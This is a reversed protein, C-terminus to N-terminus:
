NTTIKIAIPLVYDDSLGEMTFTQTAFATGTGPTAVATASTDGTEEVYTWSCNDLVTGLGELSLANFTNNDMTMKSCVVNETSTTITCASVMYATYTVSYSQGEVLNLSNDISGAVTLYGGIRVVYDYDQTTYYTYNDMLPFESPTLVFQAPQGEWDASCTWGTNDITADLDIESNHLFLQPKDNLNLVQATIPVATEGATINGSYFDGVSLTVPNALTGELRNTETNLTGDAVNFTIETVPQPPTPLKSYIDALIEDISAMNENLVSVEVNDTGDPKKFKFNTTEQM